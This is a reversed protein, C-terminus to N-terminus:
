WLGLRKAIVRKLNTQDEGTLREYELADGRCIWNLVGTSNQLENSSRSAHHHIVSESVFVSKKGLQETKWALYSDNFWMILEAPIPFLQKIAERRLAFCAGRINIGGARDARGYPEACGPDTQFPNSLWVSEDQFAALLSVDWHKSFEIDNNIVVVYDGTAHKVGKNWVSTVYQQKDNFYKKANPASQNIVRKTQLNSNDDVIILEFNHYTNAYLSEITQKLYNPANYSPLVISLKGHNVPSVKGGFLHEFYFMEFNKRRINWARTDFRILPEAEAYTQDKEADKTVYHHHHVVCDAVAFQGRRQAVQETEIDCMFHRYAPSYVVGKQDFPGGQKEIYDRRVAFHSAHKGTKTITWGDKVGVFGIGDNLLKLVPQDWGKTFELDDSGCFVFPENISRFGLNIASVYTNPEKNAIAKIGLRSAEEFTKKDSKEYLVYICHDSITNSSINAVVKELRDARGLTPILIALESM